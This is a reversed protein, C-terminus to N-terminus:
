HDRKDAARRAHREHFSRGCLPVNEFDDPDGARWDISRRCSWRDFRLDLTLM